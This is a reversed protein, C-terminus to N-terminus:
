GNTKDAKLIPIQDEYLYINNLMEDENITKATALQSVITRTIGEDGVPLFKITYNDSQFKVKDESTELDSDSPIIKCNGFYCWEKNGDSYISNELAMGFSIPTDNITETLLGKESIKKGSLKARLEIPLYYTEIEIEGGTTKTATLIPRGSGYATEMSSELKISLKIINDILWGNTLDYKPKGKEEGTLEYFAVKGCTIRAVQKNKNKM